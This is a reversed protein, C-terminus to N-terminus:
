QQLHFRTITLVIERSRQKYLQLYKMIEEEATPLTGEQYGQLPLLNEDSLIHSRLVQDDVNLYIDVKADIDVQSFLLMAEDNKCDCDDTEYTPSEM